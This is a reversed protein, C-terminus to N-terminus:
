TRKQGPSRGMAATAYDESPVIADSLARRAIPQTPGVGIRTRSESSHIIPLDGSSIVSRGYVKAFCGCTTTLRQFIDPAGHFIFILDDLSQDGAGYGIYSLPRRIM